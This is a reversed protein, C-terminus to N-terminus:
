GRRKPRCDPCRKAPRGRKRKREFSKGCDACVTLILDARDTTSTGAKKETRGAVPLSVAKATKEGSPDLGILSAGNINAPPGSRVLTKEAGYVYGQWGDHAQGSHKRPYRGQPDPPLNPPKPKVITIV